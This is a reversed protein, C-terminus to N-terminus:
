LEFPDEGPGVVVRRQWRRTCRSREGRNLNHLSRSPGQSVHRISLIRPTWQNKNPQPHLCAGPGGLRVRVNPTTPIHRLFGVMVTMCVLLELVLIVGSHMHLLHIKVLIVTWRIWFPIVYESTCSMIGLTLKGGQLGVHVRFVVLNMSFFLRGPAM